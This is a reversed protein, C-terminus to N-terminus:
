LHGVLVEYTYTKAEEEGCTHQIEFTSLINSILRGAPKTTLKIGKCKKNLCTEQNDICSTCYLRDCDFCQMVPMLPIAKCKVCCFVKKLKIEKADPSLLDNESIRAAYEGQKVGNKLQTQVEANFIGTDLNEM